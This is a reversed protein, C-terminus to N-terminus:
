DKNILKGIEERDFGKIVNGDITIVPVNLQGSLKIMEEAKLPDIAVNFDEFEINKDKFYKKALLCWPCHPTSYITIKM